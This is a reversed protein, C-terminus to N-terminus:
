YEISNLVYATDNCDNANNDGQINYITKVRDLYVTNIKQINSTYENMATEYEKANQELQETIGFLKVELVKKDAELKINSVTMGVLLISFLSFCVFVLAYKWYM